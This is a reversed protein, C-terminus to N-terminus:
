WVMEIRLEERVAGMDTNSSIVIKEDSITFKIPYKKEEMTMLSAREISSLIDRTNVKIKTEFDKPIISKYNLYEGELLRSVIKCKGIDFLYRIIQVTFQLIKM